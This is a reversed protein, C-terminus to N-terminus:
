RAAVVRKRAKSPKLPQEGFAAAHQRRIALRVAASPTLGEHAALEDLMRRELEGLLIHLRDGFRKTAPM